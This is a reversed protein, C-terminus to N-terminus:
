QVVVFPLGNPGNSGGVITAGTNAPAQFRYKLDRAASFFVIQLQTVSIVVPAGLTLIAKRFLNSIAVLAPNKKGQVSQWPFGQSTDLKWNGLVMLLGDQIRIAASQVPDTVLAAVGSGISPLVL